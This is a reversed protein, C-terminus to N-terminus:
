ARELWRELMFVSWRQYWTPRTESLRSTVDAFVNGWESSLWREYPFLFGRKPPKAVWEPVEPVAELLLQKGQRLRVAAPIRSVAEFLGRDVLPVRLELGHAMSMVDSDKLLQNRMYLSLECASVMDREDGAPVDGPSPDDPIEAASCGAYRAALARASSRTFIGRFTRYANPLTPERQLLSGVRRMPLSTGHRELAPGLLCGLGFLKAARAAKALQPVKQFSPYGGFMEDGGLGSLVVKMGQQRAFGAVTFTNFGDISPQDMHSLFRPFSEALTAANICLEHHQTGFHRATRAAMSSEDMGADDVGISFTNLDRQGAAQALALLATSDIGGSLFLGVPVDSVFHHQVSDLLAARTLRVAEPSPMEQSRFNLNWFPKVAVNGAQWTLQHGAPLSCVGELLTRPEAVSGTEFYGMLAAADLKSGVQGTEQLVRLESAFSLRGNAVTYYLPKIGFPDRALFARRARADWIAFAFMGRLKDLMAAGAKEYLRLLVETDSRTQFVVGEGELENRLEIFNYIEGNFVISLGGEACHMPQRGGESLDLIALRTHVLTVEEAEWSGEGDPGRHRLAGVAKAAFDSSTRGFQGAIGCM